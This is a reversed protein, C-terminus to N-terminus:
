GNEPSIRSKEEMLCSGDRDFFGRGDVQYVGETEQALLRCLAGLMGDTESSRGDDGQGLVFLQSTQIMHLMLQEQNAGHQIELWAAWSNLESRIGDEGALYRDIQLLAAGDPTTVTAKFWGQSDKETRVLTETRYSRLVDAFGHPDPEVDNIGFVRSWM